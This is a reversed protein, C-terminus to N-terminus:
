FKGNSILVILLVTFCGISSGYMFHVLKRPLKLSSNGWCILLSILVVFLVMMIKSIMLM